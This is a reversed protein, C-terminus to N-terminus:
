QPSRRHSAIGWGSIQSAVSVLVALSYAVLMARALGLAGEAQWTWTLGVLTIAWSAQVALATWVRGDSIMVQWYFLKLTYVPAAAIMVVVVPTAAAFEQGFLQTAWPALLAVAGAPVVTLALLVVALRNTARRFRGLDGGGSINSLVPMFVASIAVPVLVVLTMWKQAANYFAVETLGSSQNAIVTQCLWLVPVNLIAILFLPLSYTWLVGAQELRPVRFPRMGNQRLAANSLVIILGVRVLEGAGFGAVAGILGGLLAGGVTALLSAFGAMWSIAAIHSFAELGQLTGTLAGSAALLVLAPAMMRLPGSLEPANFISSAVTPAMAIQTLAFVAGAATAFYLALGSIREAHIPDQTRHAAVNRSATHGMGFTAFTVLMFLTSQVLAFAGFEAAGLLRAVAIATAFSLARAIAEGALSWLAGSALRRAVPSNAAARRGLALLNAAAVNLGNTGWM